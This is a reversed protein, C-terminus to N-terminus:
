CSALNNTVVQALQWDCVKLSQGPLRDNGIQDTIVVRSAGSIRAPKAGPGSVVYAELSIDREDVTLDTRCDVVVEWTSADLTFDKRYASQHEIGEYSGKDGAGYCNTLAAEDNNRLDAIVQDMAADAAALSAWNSRFSDTTRLATITMSLLVASVIAILGLMALVLALM